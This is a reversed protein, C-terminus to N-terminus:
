LGRSAHRQLANIILIILFSTLLMVVAIAAAGEYNFEGLEQVILSPIIESKFPQNSSIFIVSGYEGLGRAFALSFGTLLAPTLAPIIVRFFTQLRSAGLSAAAEEIESDLEMLVPQVTRVIFPLGIFQLAVFVGLSTYAVHIGLPELFRGIIGNSDYITALSIGAVSTPLAFPLDILADLVSRGFFECRVLTWAIVCGIIADLFAATFAASFSLEFARQTREDLLMAKYGSLGVEMGKLFVASLPIIVILSLYFVTYGVTLGYGPVVNYARNTKAL